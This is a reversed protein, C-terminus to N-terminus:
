QLLALPSDPDPKANRQAMEAALTAARSAKDGHVKDPVTTGGMRLTRMLALQTASLGRIVAVRPNAVTRVGGSPSEVVVVRGERRLRAEEQAMDSQVQALQVAIVLDADTWEDRARSRIIGSWYPRAADTLTCHEPVDFVPKAANAAARTLASVGSSHLKPM